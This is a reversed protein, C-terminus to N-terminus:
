GVRWVVATADAAGSLLWRGDPSVALAHVAGEHGALRAIARGTERDWVVVRGDDGGTCVARGDPTYVAAEVPTELAFTRLVQGTEADREVASVNKLHLAFSQLRQHGAAGHLPHTEIM